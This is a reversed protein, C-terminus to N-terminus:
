KIERFQMPCIVKAIRQKPSFNVVRANGLAHRQRLPDIIMEDCGPCVFKGFPVHIRGKCRPCNQPNAIKSKWEYGCRPCKM